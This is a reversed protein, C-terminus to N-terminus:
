LGRASVTMIPAASTSQPKTFDEESEMVSDIVSWYFEVFKKVKANKINLKYMKAKGVKRTFVIWKNKILEKKMSKLTTYGIKSFKAIDKLSYDFERHVIFFDIVKNRPTAGEIKLFISKAM